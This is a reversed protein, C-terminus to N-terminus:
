YYYNIFYIQIDINNRCQKIPLSDEDPTKVRKRSGSSIMSDADSEVKELCQPKDTTSEMELDTIIIQHGLQGYGTENNSINAIVKVNKWIVDDLQKTLSDADFEWIYSFKNSAMGLFKM